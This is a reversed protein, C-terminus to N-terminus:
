AEVQIPKQDKLAEVKAMDNDLVVITLLAMADDVIQEAKERLKEDNRGTGECDPCEFYEDEPIGAWINAASMFCKGEGQCTQCVDSLKELQAKATLVQLEDVLDVLKEHDAPIAEGFPYLADRILKREEPTLRM